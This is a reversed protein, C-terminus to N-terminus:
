ANAAEDVDGGRGARKRDVHRAVRERLEAQRAARVVARQERRARRPQQEVAVLHGRGDAAAVEAGAAREAAAM